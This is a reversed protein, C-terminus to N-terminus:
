PLTSSSLHKLSPNFITQVLDCHKMQCFLLQEFLITKPKEKKAKKFSIKVGNTQFFYKLTFEQYFITIWARIIAKVRM